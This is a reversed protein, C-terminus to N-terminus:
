NATTIDILSVASGKLPHYSPLYHLYGFAQLEGIVKHYTVISQIHAAKM